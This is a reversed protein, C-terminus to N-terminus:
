EPRRYWFGCLSKFRVAFPFLTLMLLLLAQSGASYWELKRGSSHAPFDEIISFRQGRTRGLGRLHRSLWIEESAYVAESFGGVCEFDDRRCFVFCGAALGMTKSLWNWARSGLSFAWTMESDFTVLAGGGCYEGSELRSLAERLLEASIITDADVFVLYRGRAQQAGTNRARSIQNIPEFVVKAGLSEACAATGDTSNNDCVILEGQLPTHSMAEHIAKVTGPLFATENYAPVVISYDTAM